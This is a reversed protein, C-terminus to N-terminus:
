LEKTKGTKYDALAERALVDLRGCSVDEKIQRDWEDADYRRFWERLTALEQRGLKQIDQELKELKTM